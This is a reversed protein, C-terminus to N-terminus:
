IKNKNLFLNKLWNAFAQGLPLESDLYRATIAQGYPMGPKEQWAREAVCRVM